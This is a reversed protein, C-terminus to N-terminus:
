GWKTVGCLKKWGARLVVWDIENMGFVLYGLLFSTLVAVIRIQWTIGTWSLGLYVLLAMGSLGIVRVYDMSFPHLKLIWRVELLALLNISAISIGTAMAAGLIGWKPILWLNLGINLLALSVSNFLSLFQHGTMQLMFGVSGVGANVLQFSALAALAGAAKLFEPGYIGLIQESYLALPVWTIFSMIFGWRAVIKFLWALEEAAGQHYLSAIIPAFVMNIAGLGFVVLLVLTVAAWYAGVDSSSAFYGLMIVDTRTLLLFSFGSLYMPLSFRLLRSVNWKPKGKTSRPSVARWVLCCSLVLALFVALALGGLAGAVGFGVIVLSVSIVFTGVTHVVSVFAFNGIQQLGRLASLILSNLNYIPVIVSVIRLPWILDMTHFLHTSIWPAFLALVSALALSTAGGLAVSALVTGKLHSIDGDARDIAVFRVLGNSLGLESLRVTLELNGVALAYLGYAGAGLLRGLFVQLAFGFVRNVVQSILVFGSGKALNKLLREVQINTIVM